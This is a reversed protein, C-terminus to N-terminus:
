KKEVFKICMPRDITIAQNTNKGTGTSDDWELVTINRGDQNAVLIWRGSPDINFNRPISIGGSLVPGPTLSGDDRVKFTAISNHGRNSVFVHKGSPHVAIEATSNKARVDQPVDKPLTPSVNLRTFIGKESDYNLSTVSSDLEGNSYAWKGNPHWAFHRPGSGKPMEFFPPSNPEIKANSADLKYVMLKDMGLDAVVGFRNDPSVHSSHAHPEKQRGLNVSSGVHQHFSSINGISGDNNLKLCKVSGGAYNAVLLCKGEHDCIVHCPGNGGSDSENLKKLEGSKADLSFAHVGGKRDSVEGVCYLFKQTPHIALFTPQTVEAAMVPKGLRGTDSDFEARYIGKSTGRSTSTGLFVWYKRDEASALATFMMLFILSLRM